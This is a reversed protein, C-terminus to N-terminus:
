NNCRAQFDNLFYTKSENKLDGSQILNSCFWLKDNIIKGHYHNQKSIEQVHFEGGDM